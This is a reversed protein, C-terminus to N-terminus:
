VAPRDDLGLAQRAASRFRRCAALADAADAASATLGPYRYRTGFRTLLALEDVFEEWGPEDPGIAGLLVLLDHQKPPEVGTAALLRAKLYKEACQQAHFAMVDAFREDGM